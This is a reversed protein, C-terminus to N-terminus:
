AWAGESRVLQFPLQVATPPEKLAVAKNPIGTYRLVGIVPIQSTFHSWPQHIPHNIAKALVRMQLTKCTPRVLTMVDVCYAHHVCANQVGFELGERM